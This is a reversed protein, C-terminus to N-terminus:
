CYSYAKNDNSSHIFGIKSSQFFVVSINSSSSFNLANNLVSLYAYGSSMNVKVMQNHFIFIRESTPTLALAAPSPRIFKLYSSSSAIRSSLNSNVLLVSSNILSSGAVNIGLGTTMQTLGVYPYDTFVAQLTSLPIYTSNIISLSIADYLNVYNYKTFFVFYKEYRAINIVPDNM